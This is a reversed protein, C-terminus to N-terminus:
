MSMSDVDGIADVLAQNVAEISQQGDVRKLLNKGDYYNILPSTSEEYAEYRTVVSARTDDARRELGQAEAQRGRELIREVTVDKPVDILLAASVKSGYDEQLMEAFADAQVTTRPYGDLIAGNACDPKALRERVMQNTVDDPVLAGSKMIEQVRRALPTTETKMARFLDGTSVQPVELKEALLKAQTGKGAGPPGLLIIYTRSM